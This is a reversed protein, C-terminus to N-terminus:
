VRYLRVCSRFAPRVNAAAAAVPDFEFRAVGAALLHVLPLDIDPIPEFFDDPCGQPEWNDWEVVGDPLAFQWVIEFGQWSDYLCRFHDLPMAALKARLADLLHGPVGERAAGARHHPALLQLVDDAGVPRAALAKRPAAPTDMRAGKTRAAELHRRRWREAREVTDMPMGRRRLRSVMAESLGLAAAMEKGTM